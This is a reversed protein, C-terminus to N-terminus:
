NSVELTDTSKKCVHCVCIPSHVGCESCFRMQCYQFIWKHLEFKRGKPNKCIFDKDPANLPNV